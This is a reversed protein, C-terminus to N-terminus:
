RAQNAELLSNTAKTAAASEARQHAAAIVAAKHNKEAIHSLATPPAPPPERYPGLSLMVAVLVVGVLAATALLGRRARVSRRRM